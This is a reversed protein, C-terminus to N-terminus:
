PIRQCTIDEASLNGNVTVSHPTCTYRGAQGSLTYAAATPVNEFKFHGLKDTVAVTRQVSSSDTLTVTARRIGRGTGSIVRGSVTATASQGQIITGPVSVGLTTLTGADKPPPPATFTNGRHEPACALAAFFFSVAVLRIRVNM